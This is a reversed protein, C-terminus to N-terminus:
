FVVVSRLVDGGHVVGGINLHHEAAELRVVSDRGAPSDEADGLQMGLFEAFAFSDAM